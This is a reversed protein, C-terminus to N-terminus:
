DTKAPADPPVTGCEPCREPTARLDYGCVPCFGPGRRRRCSGIWQIVGTVSLVGLAAMVWPAPSMSTVRRVIVLNEPYYISLDRCRATGSWWTLGSDERIEGKWPCSTVRVRTGTAPVAARDVRVYYFLFTGATVGGGVIATTHGIHEINIAAEGLLSAGWALALLLGTGLASARIASPLFIM